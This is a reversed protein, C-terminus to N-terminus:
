FMRHGCFKCYGSESGMDECAHKGYTEWDENDEDEEEECAEQQRIAFKALPVMDGTKYAKDSEYSDIYDYANGLHLSSYFEDKSSAMLYLTELMTVMAIMLQNM